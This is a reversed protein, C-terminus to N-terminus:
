NKTEIYRMLEEKSLSSTLANSVIFYNKKDNTYDYLYKAMELRNGEFKFYGILEKAQEATFYNQSIVQKATKVRTDEFNERQLTEKLQIFARPNIAQQGTGDYIDTADAWDDDGMDDFTREIQQQDVFSKGFRNISIDTHFGARLNLQANYVLVYNYVYGNRNNSRTRSNVLQYVKVSHQGDRISSITFSNNDTNYKRGDVQVRMKTNQMSTVSLRSQAYSHTAISFLFFFFLTFIKKM